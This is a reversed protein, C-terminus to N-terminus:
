ASLIYLNRTPEERDAKGMVDAANTLQLFMHIVVISFIALLPLGFDRFHPPCLLAPPLSCQLFLLRKPPFSFTLTHTVLTETHNRVSTLLAHPWSDTM